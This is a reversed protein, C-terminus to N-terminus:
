PAQMFPALALFVSRKISGRRAFRVHRLVDNCKTCDTFRLHELTNSCERRRAGPGFGSSWAVGLGATLGQIGM